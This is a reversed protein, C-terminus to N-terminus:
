MLGAAVGLEGYCTKCVLKDIGTSESEIIGTRINLAVPVVHDDSGCRDCVLPVLWNVTGGAKLTARIGQGLAHWVSPGKTSRMFYRLNSSTVVPRVETCFCNIRAPACAMKSGGLNSHFKTSHGCICVEGTRKQARKLEELIEYARDPDDIMIRMAEQKLDSM